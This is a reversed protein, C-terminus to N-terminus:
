VRPDPDQLAPVRELAWMIHEFAEQGMPKHVFGSKWYYKMSFHDSGFDLPFSTEQLSKRQLGSVNFHTLLERRDVDPDGNWVGQLEIFGPHNGVTPHFSLIFHFPASILDDHDHIYREYAAWVEGASTLPWALQGHLM